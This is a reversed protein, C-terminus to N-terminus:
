PEEKELEKFVEKEDECIEKLNARKPKLCALVIHGLRYCNYCTVITLALPVSAIRQQLEQSCFPESIAKALAM